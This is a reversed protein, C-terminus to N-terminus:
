SLGESEGGLGWRGGQGEVGGVRRRYLGGRLRELARRQLARATPRPEGGAGRHAAPDRALVRSKPQEEGDREEGEQWPDIAEVPVGIVLEMGVLALDHEAGDTKGEGIGWMVGIASRDGSTGAPEERWVRREIGMEEGIAGERLIQDGRYGVTEGPE